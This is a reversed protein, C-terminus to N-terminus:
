CGSRWDRISHIRTNSSNRRGDECAPDVVEKLVEGQLCSCRNLFNLIVDAYKEEIGYQDNTNEDYTQLSQLSTSIKQVHTYTSATCNVFHNQVVLDMVRDKDEADVPESDAVYQRFYSLFMLILQETTMTSSRGNGTIRSRKAWSILTQLVPFIWTNNAVACIIYVTRRICTISTHLCIKIHNVGDNFTIAKFDMKLSRKRPLNYEKKVLRVIQDFCEQLKTHSKVDCYVDLSSATDDFGTAHSGFVSLVVQVDDLLKMVNSLRQLARNRQIRSEKLRDNSAKFEHVERSLQQLVSRSQRQIPTPSTLSVTMSHFGRASLLHEVFIWPLSLCAQDVRQEKYTVFYVASALRSFEVNSESSQEDVSEHFMEKVKAKIVNLRSNIIQAIEVHERQLTGRRQKKMRIIHGTVIEAETSIGYENMLRLINRRYYDHIKQAANLYENYGPVLFDNDFYTELDQVYEVQNSVILDCQDYLQGLVHESNYMSKDRKLMYHPYKMPRLKSPIRVPFGTKPFDVADSHMQALDLCEQSFIGRKQGDAHALHSNAIVGLRDGEIYKGIFDIMDSETVPRHLEQKEKPQYNMPDKNDGPPLLQNHWCVFYMDGDLDSGSMEDPHPRPGETPFVICDIMHKLEPKNVAKFKRLDGPHFCPNKAVVVTGELIKTEAQPRDINVSYQVFVEGYCLSGTDDATGMM